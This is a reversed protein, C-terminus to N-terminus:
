LAFITFDGDNWLALLMLMVLIALLMDNNGVSRIIQLVSSLNCVLPAINAVLLSYKFSETMRSAALLALYYLAYVMSRFVDDSLVTKTEDPPDPRSYENGSHNNRSGSMRLANIENTLTNVQGILNNNQGALENVLMVLNPNQNRSLEDKEDQVRQLEKRLRHNEARLTENEDIYNNVANNKLVDLGAEFLGRLDSM